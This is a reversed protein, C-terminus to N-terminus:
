DSSIQGVYFSATMQCGTKKTPDGAAGESLRDVLMTVLKFLQTSVAFGTILDRFLVM